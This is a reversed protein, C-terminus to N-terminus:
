EKEESDQNLNGEEADEMDSDDGRMDENEDQDEEPVVFVEDVDDLEVDEDNHFTDLAEVMLDIWRYDLQSEAQSVM